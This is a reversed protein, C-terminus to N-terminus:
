VAGFLRIVRRRAGIWGALALLWGVSGIILVGPWWGPNYEILVTSVGAPVPIGRFLVDARYIPAAEGNVHAQWGPYFTDTIILYGATPSEVRLRMSEAQYAEFTAVVPVAQPTVSEIPLRPEVGVPASIIAQRFPDFDPDRMLLLAVEQGDWNDTVVEIQNVVFARPPVTLNEYLKIDSSLRRAWPALTVQQFDGTRDDVLSVARVRIVEDGARLSIDTPTRAEALTLTVLLYEDLADPASSASLTQQSGDAYAVQATPWCDSTLCDSGPRYLIHLATSEFAPVASVAVSQGPRIQVDFSTDYFIGDRVRDFVKDTILYRTGTLNLWRQDPICAGGCDPRALIERLRGDITRLEGPPLMLSTFATYAGVPLLGGDFGDISALNWTLPLNAAIVERLKTDVLALRIAFDSMGEARFREILRANDGPDFQTGSISLFRGPPTQDATLTALQNITFRSATYTDPPVLENYALVRSALFLEVAAAIVLLSVGTGQFRAMGSAMSPTGASARQGQTTLNETGRDRQEKATFTIGVLLMVTAVAWGVWTVTTPAAPGIVDLPMTVALLSSAALGGLVGLVLGIQWRRPRALLLSQAGAGALLAAGFAFLALWRAPVRFFSFGPLEALLWYLPNFEGLALFLGVVALLLFPLTSPAPTSETPVPNIGDTTSGQSVASGAVQWRGGSVGGLVALGLGIVGLWAMYEGFVLADYAPLFGRGILAPNLSFAMAQQPNLGGGRNSQGSLEATPLLQPIALVLAILVAVLLMGARGAVGRSYQLFAAIRTGLRASTTLPTGLPNSPALSVIGLGVLTIFVTQPHGALLQLAVGIGVQLIRTLSYLVEGGVGRELRATKPLRRPLPPLFWLMVWPMWALAQLQNINEAKAGVYGGLGFLVAALLAPMVDLRLQARGLRYTGWLGWILHALLSITIATPADLPTLPWNFPYFLGMQSNALLPSGMFLDTTWFPIRGDRLAEHRETWYPYFYSYVDGRGLILGSFALKHFFLLALIALALYPLLRLLRNSPSLPPRITV